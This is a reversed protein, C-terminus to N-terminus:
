LGPGFGFLEWPQMKMPDTADAGGRVPATYTYGAPPPLDHSKAPVVKGAMAAQRMATIAAQAQAKEAERKKNQVLSGKLGTLYKLTEKKLHGAEPSEKVALIMKRVQTESNIHPCTRAYGYHAIGCLNCYEPGAIKFPCSGLPHVQRCAVCAAM